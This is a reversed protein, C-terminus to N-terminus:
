GGVLPVLKLFRLETGRTLTVEEDLAGVQRDDVLLLFGNTEFAELALRCQQEADIERHRRLRYGNLVREADTPQVLGQFYEPLSRNHEAVEHEVRRCILERVTVRESALELEFWRLREGSSTADCVTVATAM